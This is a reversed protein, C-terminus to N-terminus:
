NGNDAEQKLWDLWEQKTEPMLNPATVNLMACVANVIVIQQNAMFEALEEDTMARISDGRSKVPPKYAIGDAFGKEYQGRDYELAKILEDRDVEPCVNKVAKIILNDYEDRLQEIRTDSWWVNIPSEYAM